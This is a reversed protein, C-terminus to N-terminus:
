HLIDLLLCGIVMIASFASHKCTKRKWKRTRPWMVAKRRGPIVMVRMDVRHRTADMKRRAVRREDPQVSERGRRGIVSM